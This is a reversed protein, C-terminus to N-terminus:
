GRQRMRAGLINSQAQKAYGSYRCIALTKALMAGEGSGSNLLKGVTMGRAAAHEGVFQLIEAESFGHSDNEENIMKALPVIGYTKVIKRLSDDGKAFVPAKPANPAINPSSPRGNFKSGGRGESDRSSTGVAGMEADIVRQRDKYSRKQEPTLQRYWTEFLESYDLKKMDREERLLETQEDDSLANWAESRAERASLNPFGRSLRQILFEYKERVSGQPPRDGDDRKMLVVKVGEGAGRDVSSIENIKLRTLIRPM